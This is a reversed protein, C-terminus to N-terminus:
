NSTRGGGLCCFHIGWRDTKSPWSSICSLFLVGITEHCQKGSPGPVQCFSLLCFKGVDHSSSSASNVSVM